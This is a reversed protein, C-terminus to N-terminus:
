KEEKSKLRDLADLIMTAGDIYGTMSLEKIIDILTPDLDPYVQTIRDVITTAYLEGSQRIKTDISERNVM